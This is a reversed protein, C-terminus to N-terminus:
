SDVILLKSVTGVSSKIHINELKNSSTALGNSFVYSQNQKKYPLSIDSFCSFYCNEQEKGM